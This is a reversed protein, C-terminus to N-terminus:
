TDNDLQDKFNKNLFFLTQDGVEERRWKERWTDNNLQGLFKFKKLIETKDWQRKVEM